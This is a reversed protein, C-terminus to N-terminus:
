WGRFAQAPGYGKNNDLLFQDHKQWVDASGDTMSNQQESVATLVNSANPAPLIHYQNIQNAFYEKFHTGNLPNMDYGSFPANNIPVSFPM